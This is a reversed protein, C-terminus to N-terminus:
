GKVKKFIEKYTRYFGEYENFAHNFYKEFENVDKVNIVANVSKNYARMKDMTSFRNSILAVFMNRRINMKLSSLYKLVHNADPDRTGFLENLIIVQFEHARTQKLAERPSPPESIHYNKKKLVDHIKARINADPECLMATQAGEELFGFPSDSKADDGGDAAGGDPAPTAQQPPPAAPKAVPAAPAKSPQPTDQKNEVSIKNKCKPCNISFVQGKPVKELNKDPIKIKTNCNSCVVDM